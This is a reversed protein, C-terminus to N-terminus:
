KSVHVPAERRKETSSIVNCNCCDSIWHSKTTWGITRYLHLKTSVNLMMEEVAPVLWDLRGDDVM